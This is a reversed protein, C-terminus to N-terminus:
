ILFRLFVASVTNGDKQERKRVLILFIGAIGAMFLGAVFIFFVPYFPLYCACLLVAFADGKGIAEKTLISLVFLFSVSCFVRYRQGYFGMRCKIFHM